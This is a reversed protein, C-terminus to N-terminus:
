LGIARCVQPGRRSTTHLATGAAAAGLLGGVASGPFGGVMFGGAVGCVTGATFSALSILFPAYTLKFGAKAQASEVEDSPLRVYQNQNRAPRWATRPGRTVANPLMYRSHRSLLLTDTNRQSQQLLNLPPSLHCRKCGGEGGGLTIFSVTQLRKRGGEGGGGLGGGGDGGGDGGVVEGGRGRVVEGRAM